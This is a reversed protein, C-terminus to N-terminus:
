NQLWHLNILIRQITQIVRIWNSVGKVLDWNLIQDLNAVRLSKNGQKNNNRKCRSKTNKLSNGPRVKM